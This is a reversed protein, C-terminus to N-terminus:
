ATNADDFLLLLLWPISQNGQALESQAQETRLREGNWGVDEGDLGRL